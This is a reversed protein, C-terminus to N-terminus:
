RFFDKQKEVLGIGKKSRQSREGSFFVAALLTFLIILYFGALWLEIDTAFKQWDGKFLASVNWGMAFCLLLFFPPIMLLFLCSMCSCDSSERFSGYAKDVQGHLKKWDADQSM